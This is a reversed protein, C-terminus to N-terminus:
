RRYSSLMVYDKRPGRVRWESSWNPWGAFAYSVQYRDPDCQHVAEASATRLPFGHFPRGDSFRISVWGARSQWIYRQTAALAPQGPIMLVGTETYVLRHGSHALVAEGELRMPGRTADEIQRELRWVGEFQALSQPLLIAATM